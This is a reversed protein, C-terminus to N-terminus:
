VLCRRVYLTCYFALPVPGQYLVSLLAPLLPSMWPRCQWKCQIWSGDLGRTLRSRNSHLSGADCRLQKACRSRLPRSKTRLLCLRHM